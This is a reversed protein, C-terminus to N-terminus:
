PLGLRAKMATQTAVHVEDVTKTGDVEVVKGKEKYYEVVPLSTDLFTKFRKKISDENDDSRGSTKGRELLRQLMVEETCTFFLVFLSQCVTQDFILAQDMKRPFGDVLFRGKGDGWGHDTRDKNKDLTEHMANELLKVTVESPVIKGDRIYEKIMEGYKSGERDQEHRLLDGASLHCFGFDQVLRACQTGKGVGPGGLVFVVIVKDHDFVAKNLHLAEKLKDIIAAM